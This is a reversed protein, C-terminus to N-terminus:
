CRVGGKRPPPTNPSHSVPCFSFYEQSLRRLDPTLLSLYEEDTAFKRWRELVKMKSGNGEYGRSDFSSGGGFEPVTDLGTDSFVVGLRFALTRRYQMDLVWRNYNVDVFPRGLYDATHTVQKLYQRCIELRSLREGNHCCKPSPGVVNERDPSSWTAAFTSALWNFPDRVLLVVYDFHINGFWEHYCRLDLDEVGFVVNDAGSIFRTNYKKARGKRDSTLEKGIDNFYVTKGSLQSCLWNAFAHNGSRQVGLILYKAPFSGTQCYRRISWALWARRQQITAKQFAKQM